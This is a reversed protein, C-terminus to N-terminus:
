KREWVYKDCVIMSCGCDCPESGVFPLEVTWRRCGKTVLHDGTPNKFCSIAGYGSSPSYSDGRYSWEGGSTRRINWIVPLGVIPQKRLDPSPNCVDDTRESKSERVVACLGSIKESYLPHGERRYIPNVQHVYDLIRAKVAAYKPDDCKFVEVKSEDVRQTDTDAHRQCQDSMRFREQEYPPVRWTGMLAAADDALSPTGDTGIASLTLVLPVLFLRTFKHHMPPSLRQTRPTLVRNM